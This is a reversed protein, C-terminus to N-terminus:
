KLPATWNPAWQHLAPNSANASLGSDFTCDVKSPPGVLWNIEDTGAGPVQVTGDVFLHGQDSGSGPIINDYVYQNNGDGLNPFGAPDPASLVIPYPDFSVNTQGGTWKMYPPYSSSQSFAPNHASLSDTVTCSGLSFDRQELRYGSSIGSSPSPLVLAVPDGFGDAASSGATDAQTPPNPSNGWLSAWRAYGYELVFLPNPAPDTLLTKGAAPTWTLTSTVAGDSAGNRDDSGGFGYGGGGAFPGTPWNGSQSPPTQSPSTYSWTGQQTSTVTWAHGGGPYGGGPYQASVGTPASLGVALAAAFPLCLLAPAASPPSCPRCSSRGAAVVEVQSINAVTGITVGSQRRTL